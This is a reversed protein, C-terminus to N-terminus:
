VIDVQINTMDDNRRRITRTFEPDDYLSQAGYVSFQYKEGIRHLKSADIYTKVTEIHPSDDRQYPLLGGDSWAYITSGRVIPITKQCILDEMEPQGNLIGCGNPPPTNIKKLYDGAIQENVIRHLDPDALVERPTMNHSRALNKINKYTIEDWGCNQDTTLIEINGDPYEICSGTDAVHATTIENNGADFLVFTSSSGPVTLVNKYDVGPIKEQQRKLYKNAAIMVDSAKIGPTQALLQFEESNEFGMGVAHSAYFAGAYGLKALFENKLRSSAGDIVAAVLRDDGLRAIWPCDENKRKEIGPAPVTEVKVTLNVGGDKNTLHFNEVRSQHLINTLNEPPLWFDNAKEHRVSYNQRLEINEQILGM